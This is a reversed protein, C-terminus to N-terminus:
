VPQQQQHLSGRDWLEELRWARIQDLNPTASRAVVEVAPDPARRVALVDAGEYAPFPVLSIEWLLCRHRVVSTRDRNWEDGEPDAAFGMSVHLSGDKALTLSEDGLPTQAVHFTAYLGDARNPHVTRCHGILRQVEHDRLVKIRNPRAPTGFADPAITETYLGIDRDFVKAPQDYLVGCVDVERKNVGVSSAMRQFLVTPENM